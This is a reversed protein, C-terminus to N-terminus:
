RTHQGVIVGANWGHLCNCGAIQVEAVNKHNAKDDKLRKGKIALM